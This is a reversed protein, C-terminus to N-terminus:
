HHRSVLKKKTSSNTVNYAISFCHLSKRSSHIVPVTHVCFQDITIKPPVMKQYGRVAGLLVQPIIKVKRVQVYM